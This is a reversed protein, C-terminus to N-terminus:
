FKFCLFNPFGIKAGKFFAIKLFNGSLQVGCFVCFSLQAFAFRRFGRKKPGSIVKAWNTGRLKAWITVNLFGLSPGTLVKM